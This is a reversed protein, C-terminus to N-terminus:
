ITRRRLRRQRWWPVLRVTRLARRGSVLAASHTPWTRLARASHPEEGLEPVYRTARPDVLGGLVLRSAHNNVITAARDNWRAEIQAFDQFVTVLTIGLGRGTAALQDLDELPAVVAAEDLVALLERGTGSEFRRQQDVVVARLAGRFLGEYRRQEHRPAVLYLTNPGDLLAGLQALPQRRQWPTLMAEVTTAVADLTRPEHARFTRLVRLVDADDADPVEDLFSREEVLAVLDFVSGGRQKVVVALAGLLKVALANWFESESSARSRDGVVLDRAVGLADHYDMVSELPDWTAGSARGPELEHVEGMRERWPRTLELVDRKVSTVVLPGSWRLIAPVVLSSTKGSQTPGVVLLSHGSPLELRPGVGVHHWSPRGLVPREGRRVTAKM